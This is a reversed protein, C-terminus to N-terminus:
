KSVCKSVRKQKLQEKVIEHTSQLLYNIGNKLLESETLYPIDVTVDRLSTNAFLKRQHLPLANIDDPSLFDSILIYDRNRSKNLKEMLIKEFLEPQKKIYYENTFGFWGGIRMIDKATVPLNFSSVCLLYIEIPLDKLESQKMSKLLDLTIEGKEKLISCLVLSSATYYQFSKNKHHERLKLIVKVSQEWKDLYLHRELGYYLLFVYGINFDSKYPNELFKIYVGKQLPSLGWYTPYYAPPEVDEIKKPFEVPLGTFIMSPEEMSADAQSLTFGNCDISHISQGAKINKLPSDAYWILERIDQHFPYSFSLGTERPQIETDTIGEKQTIEEPTKRITFYFGVPM